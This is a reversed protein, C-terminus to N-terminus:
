KMLVMKKTIKPSDGIKLVYFYIGSPLTDAPNWEKEYNGPALYENVLTDVVQGFVNYIVLTVQDARPVIYHIETMPSFPNPFRQINTVWHPKTSLFNYLTDEVAIRNLNTAGDASTCFGRISLILRGRETEFHFPPVVISGAQWKNGALHSYSLATMAVTLCQEPGPNDQRVCFSDIRIKPVLYASPIKGESALYNAYIVGRVQPYQIKADGATSDATELHTILEFNGVTDVPYLFGAFEFTTSDDQPRPTVCGIVVSFVVILIVGYLRFRM